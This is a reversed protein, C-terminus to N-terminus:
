TKLLNLTALKFYQLELIHVRHLSFINKLHNERDKFEFDHIPRDLIHYLPEKPLLHYKLRVVPVQKCILTHTITHMYLPVIHM